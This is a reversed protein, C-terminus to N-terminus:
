LRDLQEAHKNVSGVMSIRQGTAYKNILALLEDCREITENFIIPGKPLLYFTKKVDLDICYAKIERGESLDYFRLVRIRKVARWAIMRWTFGFVSWKVGEPDICVRSVLLRANVYFPVLLAYVALIFLFGSRTEGREIAITGLVTVGLLFIVAFDVRLIKSRKYHFCDM